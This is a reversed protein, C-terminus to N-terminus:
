ASCIALNLVVLYCLAEYKLFAEVICYNNRQEVMVEDWQLSVPWFLLIDEILLILVLEYRNPVAFSFLSLRILFGKLLEPHRVAALYTIILWETDFILKLAQTAAEALGACSVTFEDGESALFLHFFDVLTQMIFSDQRVAQKIEFLFIFIHSINCEETLADITCLHVFDRAKSCRRLLVM